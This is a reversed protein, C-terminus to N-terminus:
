KKSERQIFFSNKEGGIRKGNDKKIKKIRKRAREQM